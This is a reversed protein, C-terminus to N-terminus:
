LVARPPPTADTPYVRPGGHRRRQRRATGHGATGLPGLAAAAAAAAAARDTPM